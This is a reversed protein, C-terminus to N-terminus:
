MLQCSPKTPAEDVASDNEEEDSGEPIVSVGMTGGTDEHQNKEARRDEVGENHAATYKQRLRKRESMEVERLLNSRRPKGTGDDDDAGSSSHGTSHKVWGHEPLEIQHETCIDELAETYALLGSYEEHAMENTVEMIGHGIRVFRWVRVIVLFGAASQYLENKFFHFVVEFLFLSSFFFIYKSNTLQRCNLAFVMACKKVTHCCERELVLSITIIVYDLMFFFQRFFIQPKLAIMVVNLEVMFISLITITLAFLVEEVTHVTSWKHEDCGAEYEPFARLDDAECVDHHEEGHGSAAELFRLQSGAGDDHEDDEEAPCCSIADRVIVSCHPFLALLLIEIFLIIVDLLLLAMLLKQVKGSHVFRLVKYRWSHTGHQEKAHDNTGQTTPINFNLARTSLAGANLGPRQKGSIRRQPFERQRFQAGDAGPSIPTGTPGEGKEPVTPKEM